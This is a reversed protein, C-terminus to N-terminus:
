KDDTFVEYIIIITNELQKFDLLVIQDDQEKIWSNITNELTHVGYLSHFIKIQKM